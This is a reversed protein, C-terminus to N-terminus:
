IGKSRSLLTRNYLVHHRSMDKQSEVLSLEIRLKLISLDPSHLAKLLFTRRSVHEYPEYRKSPFGTKRSEKTRTSPILPFAIIEKVAFRGVTYRRGLVSLLVTENAVDELELLQRKFRSNLQYVYTLLRAPGRRETSVSFLLTRIYGRARSM